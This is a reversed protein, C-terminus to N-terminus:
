RLPSASFISPRQNNVRALDDATPTGTGHLLVCSASARWPAALADLVSIPGDSGSDLQLLIEQDGTDPLNVSIVLRGSFPVQTAADKPSVLPVREGQLM